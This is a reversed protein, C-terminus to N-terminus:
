SPENTKKRATTRARAYSRLFRQGAAARDQESTAATLALLVRDEFAVHTRAAKDLEEALQDFREASPATQGLATLIHRGQQEQGSAAAALEAGDALVAGVWPWFHKEEAAEHRSMAEAIMSVISARRAQHRESGGMTVGPITKLQKLMATVQDHQRSLLMAIDTLQPDAPEGPAPDRARAAAQMPTDMAARQKVWDRIGPQVTPNVLTVSECALHQTSGPLVGPRDPEGPPFTDGGDAPLGTAVLYAQGAPVGLTRGAARYDERERYASLAQERTPM